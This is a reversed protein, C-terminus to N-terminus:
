YPIRAVISDDKNDSDLMCTYYTVINEQSENNDFRMRYQATYNTFGIENLNREDKVWHILLATDAIYLNASYVFSIALSKPSQCKNKKHYKPTMFSYELITCVENETSERLAERLENCLLLPRLSNKPRNFIAERSFVAPHLHCRCIVTCALPM